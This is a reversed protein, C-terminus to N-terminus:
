KEQIYIKGSWNNFCFFHFSVYHFTTERRKMISAFTLCLPFLDVYFPNETLGVKESQNSFTKNLPVPTSVTCFVRKM